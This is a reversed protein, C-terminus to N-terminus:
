AVADGVTARARPAGAVAVRLPDLLAGYKLAQATDRRLPERVQASSITKINRQTEHFRLCREEFPLDCFELLERTKGDQDAQLDEYVMDFIRGPYLESWRRCVRDFDRWYAGMDALDYCYGHGDEAFLQRFCSFGTEIPDRRCVVIRAEPLMAFIAGAFRWNGLMKDVFRPTKGRWKEARELYNRGLRQWDESTADRAWGALACGRLQSEEEIVHHLDSREGAGTVQSHSALIQEALTSGSRPLSTVFIVEGGQRAPSGRPPPTFAALTADMRQSFDAADWPLNERVRANADVLAAFADDYRRQDDYGKAVAFLLATRERGEPHAALAREMAAVDEASFKLNKLNALGFWPWPLTANRALMRRYESTVMDIRGQERMMDSRMLLAPGHHPVLNIVQDVAALGEDVHDQMFLVVALNYWAPALKPNLTVARRFAEHAPELEGNMRHAAGLSNQILANDPEQAALEKLLPMAEEDRGAGRLAAALLRRTEAHGPVDLLLANALGIAREFQSAKLADEIEILRRDLEADGTFPVFGHPPATKRSLDNM